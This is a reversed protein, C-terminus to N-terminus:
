PKFIAWKLRHVWLGSVCRRAWEKLRMPNGLYDRLFRLRDTRTVLRRGVLCKEASRNLRALNRVDMAEVRRPKLSAKDFDVFFVDFGSLLINKVNLDAHYVGADHLRRLATAVRRFAERKVDTDLRPVLDLLNVADPIERNVVTFRHFPGWARTRLAALPEPVAAGRERAAAAARIEHLARGDDLYLTKLILGPAGGRVAQRVFVRGPAGKPAYSFHVARGGGKPTRESDPVNRFGDFLDELLFDKWTSRITVTHPGRTVTEYGPLEESTELRAM